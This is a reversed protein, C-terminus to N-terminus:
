GAFRSAVSTVPKKCKAAFDPCNSAHPIHTSPVDSQWLVFRTPAVLSYNITTYDTFLNLAATNTVAHYPWTVLNDFHLVLRTVHEVEVFMWFSHLVINRIRDVSGVEFM